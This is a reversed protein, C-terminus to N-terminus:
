IMSTSKWNQSFCILPRPPPYLPRPRPISRSGLRLRPPRSRPLLFPLSLPAPRSPLKRFLLFLRYSGGILLLSCGWLLGCTLIPAIKNM